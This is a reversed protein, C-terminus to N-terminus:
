DGGMLDLKAEKTMRLLVWLEAESAAPTTIYYKNHM